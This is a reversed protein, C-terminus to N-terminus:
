IKGKYDEAALMLHAWELYEERTRPDNFFQKYDGVTYADVNLLDSIPINITKVTSSSIDGWYNTRHKTYSITATGKSKNVKEVMCVAEPIVYGDRKLQYSEYNSYGNRRNKPKESEHEVWTKVCYERAGSVLSGVKISENLKARYAEFDSKVGAYLANSYDYVPQIFAMFDNADWLKVKPHPHLCESRDLLGQIITSIQNFKKVEKARDAMVADYLIHDPTLLEFQNLHKDSKSEYRDFLSLNEGHLKGRGNRWEIKDKEIETESLNPYNTAYWDNVEAQVDALEEKEQEWLRVTKIKYYGRPDNDHKKVVCPEFLNFDSDPFLLSDFDIETEIMYLNEGNRVYLYTLKDQNELRMRIFGEVLDRVRGRDKNKRRVQMVLLTKPHPLLRNMSDPKSLWDNFAGINKFEMGGAQYDLLCEEDMFRKHQMIHLKEHYAAPEGTKFHVQSEALGAYISVTFLRDEIVRIVEQQPAISAKLGIMEASMWSSMAKSEEEIQKYINPLKTQKIEVLQQKYDDVNVSREIVAIENTGKPASVANSLLSSPDVGFCSLLNQMESTLANLNSEREKVKAQIIAAHNPEFTLKTFFDKFHIFFSYFGGYKSPSGLGLFNSGIHVVCALHKDGDDDTVWFWQGLKLDVPSKVVKIHDDSLIQTSLQSM